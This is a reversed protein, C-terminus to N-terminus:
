GATPAPGLVGDIDAIDTVALVAAVPLPAYLHPFHEDRDAVAEDVLDDGLRDAAISLLVLDDVGQYYRELVPRVQEPNSCHIFGVEAFSQERTSRAYAGAALAERWHARDAVHYIVRDTV